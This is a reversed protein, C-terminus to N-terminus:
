PRHGATPYPPPRPQPNKPSHTLWPSPKVQVPILDQSTFASSLLGCPTTFLYTYISLGRTALSILFGHCVILVATFDESLWCFILIPFAVESFTFDYHFSGVCTHLIDLHAANASLLLSSQCTRTLLGTFLRDVAASFARCQCLFCMPVQDPYSCVDQLLWLGSQTRHRRRRLALWQAM